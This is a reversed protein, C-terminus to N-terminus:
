NPDAISYLFLMNSVRQYAIFLPETSSGVIRMENQFAGYDASDKAVAAVQSTEARWVSFSSTVSKNEEGFWTRKSVGTFAAVYRENVAGVAYHVGTSPSCYERTVSRTIPDVTLVCDKKNDAFTSTAVLMQRGWFSLQSVADIQAVHTCALKSEASCTYIDAKGGSSSGVEVAVGIQGYKPAFALSMRKANRTPLVSEQQKDGNRLSYAILHIAGDKASALVLLRGRLDDVAFDNIHQDDVQAMKGVTSLSDPDIVDIHFGASCLFVRHLKSSTEVRGCPYASAGMPSEDFVRKTIISHNRLSWSSLQRHSRIVMGGNATSLLVQQVFFMGKEEYFAAGLVNGEPLAIKSGRVEMNQAKMHLSCTLCLFLIGITKIM